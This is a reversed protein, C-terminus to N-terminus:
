YTVYTRYDGLIIDIRNKPTYSKAPATASAPQIVNSPPPENSAIYGYVDESSIGADEFVTDEGKPRLVLKLEGQTNALTLKESDEPKLAFTLQGVIMQGPEAVLTPDFLRDGTALVFVNQLITKTYLRPKGATTTGEQFQGLIDVYDGPSIYGGVGTVENVMITIARQGRPILNALGGAAGTKVLKEPTLVEDALINTKVVRGILLEPNDPYDAPVTQFPFQKVTLDEIIIRAGSMIDRAAVVVGRTATLKKVKEETQKLYHWISFAASLALLMAAGVLLLPSMGKPKRKPKFQQAPNTAM